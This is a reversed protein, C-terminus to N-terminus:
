EPLIKTDMFKDLWVGIACAISLATFFTYVGGYEEVNTAVLPTVLIAWTILYGLASSIVVLIIRKVLM